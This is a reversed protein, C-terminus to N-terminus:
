KGICFRSFIEGLITDAHVEGIMGSLEDIACRLESAILEEGAAERILLEARGLSQCAQDIGAACRMATYQLAEAMTTQQVEGLARVIQQRLLAIREPAQMSVVADLVIGAIEAPPNALQLGISPPAVDVKTGIKLIRKGQTEFPTLERDSEVTRASRGTVDDGIPLQSTDICLLLLEAQQIRNSVLCQALARPSDDAIEEIGATDTLQFVLGEWEAVASIADRTTGAIASVIVRSQELLANFLSSKGANPRGILVVELRRGGAGRQQLQAAIQLLSDRVADIGGLLEEEAIFEIDEEVFDLGAELHATLQLLQDRLRRVPRSLNGGLQALALQLDDLHEAQIVGLVAEAQLLDIKGALFSRLTFEGREALRAGSALMRGLILELLPLSGLTHLEASPEGTYSRGDPWYYIRAPLRRGSDDIRVDGVRSSARDVRELWDHLGSDPFSLSQLIDRTRPGSMRVIGRPAPSAGSGIAVITDELDLAAM